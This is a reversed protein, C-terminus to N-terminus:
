GNVVTFTNKVNEITSSGETKDANAPNTQEHLQSVKVSASIVM